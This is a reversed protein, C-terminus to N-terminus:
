LGPFYIVSLALLLLFNTLASELTQHRRSPHSPATGPNKPRNAASNTGAGPGLLSNGLIMIWRPRVRLPPRTSANLLLSPLCGHSLSLIPRICQRYRNRGASAM